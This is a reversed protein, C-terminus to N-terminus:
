IINARPEKAESEGWATSASAFPEVRFRSVIDGELWMRFNTGWLNNYLNVHCGKAPNPLRDDFHTLDRRNFIAIPSDLAHIRFASGDRRMWSVGKDLAHRQRSGGSVIHRADIEWGAKHLHLWTGPACPPHFSFWMSEPKRTAKKGLCSVSIDFHTSHHPFSYVIVVRRPCGPSSVRPSLTLVLRYVQAEETTTHHLRQLRPLLVQAKAHAADLGPKGFDQEIWAPPPKRGYAKVYRMCDDASYTQYAFVGLPKQATAVVSGDAITKLQVLGGHRSCFKLTYQGTHHPGSSIQPASALLRRYDPELKLFSADVQRRLAKPLGAQAAAVRAEKEKWSMEMLRYKPTKRRLAFESQGWGDWDSLYAAVNLGFTHEAVLCLNEILNVDHGKGRNIQGSSLWTQRLRNLARFQAVLKPSSAYGHIWTDGIEADLEPLEPCLRDIEDGINDLSTPVIEAQPYRDRLTAYLQDLERPTHPGLNDGKVRGVVAVDTGPLVDTWGYRSQYMLTLMSNGPGRWRCLVPVQPMPSAANVGIHLFKVGHRVFHPVLARTHGPVDTFKAATTRRGYRADLEHSFFFSSDLLDADMAEVEVTFPQAHWILDGRKIAQEARRVSAPAARRLHQWLLWAPATWVYREGQGAAHRESLACVAPIFERNYQSVVEAALQTYGVDLHTKFFLLVRRIHPYPGSPTLSSPLHAIKQM